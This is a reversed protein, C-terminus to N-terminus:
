RQPASRPVVLDGRYVADRATLIRMVSTTQGTTVVVGEGVAALPMRAGDRGIRIVDRYIAFRAGAVLGQDTGRDIVMYEGIAGSHRENDGYLVRGVSNFDPAISRDIAMLDAPVSPAAFPELFDNTHLYSCAHEVVAIARTEDAAVIQIWGSTHLSVRRPSATGSLIVPRRAVYRQGLQLGKATGADVIVLDRAVFDERPVTDQVGIVHLASSDPVVGQPPMACAVSVQLVSLADQAPPAQAHLARPAFAVFAVFAVPAVRRSLIMM